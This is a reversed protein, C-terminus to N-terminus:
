FYVKVLCVFAADFLEGAISRGTLIIGDGSALHLIDRDELPSRDKVLPKPSLLRNSEIVSILSSIM